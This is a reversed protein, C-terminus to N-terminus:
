GNYKGIYCNIIKVIGLDLDENARWGLENELKSADIANILYLRTGSEGTLIIGKM